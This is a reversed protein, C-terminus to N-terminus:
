RPAEDAPPVASDPESDEPDADTGAGCCPRVDMELIGPNQLPSREPRNQIEDVYREIVAAPGAVQWTAGGSPGRYRVQVLVDQLRWERGDITGIPSTPDLIARRAGPNLFEASVEVARTDDGWWYARDVVLVPEPATPVRESPAVGVSDGAPAAATTAPLGGAEPTGPDRDACAGLVVALLLAGLVPRAPLGGITPTTSAAERPLSMQDGIIGATPTERPEARETPRM